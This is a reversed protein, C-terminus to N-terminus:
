LEEPVCLGFGCGEAVIELVVMEVEDVVQEHVAFAGFVEQKGEEFSVGVGRVKDVRGHALQGDLKVVVGRGM